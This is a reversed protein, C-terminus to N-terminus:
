LERISAVPATTYTHIEDDVDVWYTLPRGVEVRLWVTLERRVFDGAMRAPEEGGSPRTMGPKRTLFAGDTSAEYLLATGATTTIEFNGNTGPAINDSMHPSHAAGDAYTGWM